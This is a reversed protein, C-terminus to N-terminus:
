PDRTLFKVKSEDVVLHCEKISNSYEDIQFAAHNNGSLIPQGPLEDIQGVLRDGHCLFILPNLILAFLIKSM